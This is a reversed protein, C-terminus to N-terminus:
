GGLNAFNTDGGTVSPSRIHVYPPVTPFGVTVVLSANELGTELV